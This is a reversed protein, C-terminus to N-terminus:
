VYMLRIMRALTTMNYQNCQPDAFTRRATPVLGLDVLAQAQPAANRPALLHAMSSVAVVIRITKAPTKRIQKMFPAKPPPNEMTPMGRSDITISGTVAPPRRAGNNM